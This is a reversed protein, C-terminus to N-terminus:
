IYHNTKHNITLPVVFHVPLQYVSKCVKTVYIHKGVLCWPIEFWARTKMLSTFINADRVSMKTFLAMKSLVGASFHNPGLLKQVKFSESFGLEVIQSLNWPPALREYSGKKLAVSPCFALVSSIVSKYSLKGKFTLTLVTYATIRERSAGVTVRSYGARILRNDAVYPRLRLDRGHSKLHGHLYQIRMIQLVSNEHNQIKKPKAEMKTIKENSYIVKYQVLTYIKTLVSERYERFYFWARFYGHICYKLIPM